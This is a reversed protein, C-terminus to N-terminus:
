FITDGTSKNVKYHRFKTTVRDINKNFLGNKLIENPFLYKAMHYIMEKSEICNFLKLCECSYFIESVLDYNTDTCFDTIELNRYIRSVVSNLIEHDKLKDLTDEMYSSFLVYYTAESSVIGDKYQLIGEPTIRRDIEEIIANIKQKDIKDILGLINYLKLIVVLQSTELNMLYHKEFFSADAKILQDLKKESLNMNILEISKFFYYIQDTDEIIAADFEDIIESYTELLFKEVKEVDIEIHLAKSLYLGCFYLDPNRLTVLPVSQLWENINDKLYKKIKTFEFMRELNFFNIIRYIMYILQLKDQPDQINELSEIECKNQSFKKIIKNRINIYKKLNATKEPDNELLNKLRQIEMIVEFPLIGKSKLQLILPAVSSDVLYDIIKELFAEYILPSIKKDYLEFSSNLYNKEDSNINLSPDFFKNKIDEESFGLELLTKTLSKEMNNLSDELDKKNFKINSISKQFFNDISKYFVESENIYLDLINFLGQYIM